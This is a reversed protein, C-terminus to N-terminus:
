AVANRRLGVSQLKKSSLVPSPGLSCNTFFARRASYIDARTDVDITRLARGTGPQSTPPPGSSDSRVPHLRTKSRSGIQETAKAIGFDIVKAVLSTMTREIGVLINSPKLDRHIIGKQHAHQVGDCVQTFLKLRDEITLRHRDCYVTIPVGDVYEMAFYPRGEDTAGADHVTAINPHNMLALAQRESDFRAIVSKTDMGWKVLKVAVRRRVPSQQLAEFVTGMGGEGIQRLLRYEGIREPVSTDRELPRLALTKEAVVTPAERDPEVDGLRSEVEARLTPDWEELGDLFGLRELPSKALATKVLQELLDPRKNAM